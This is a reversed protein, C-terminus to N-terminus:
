ASRPIDASEDSLSIFCGYALRDAYSSDVLATLSGNFTIHILQSLFGLGVPLSTNSIADLGCLKGADRQESDYFLHNDILGFSGGISASFLKRSEQFILSCSM